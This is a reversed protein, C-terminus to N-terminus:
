SKLHSLLGLLNEDKSCSAIFEKMEVKGDSNCDMNTFIRETMEETTENQGMKQRFRVIKFILHFIKKMEMLEISGNGDVDYM